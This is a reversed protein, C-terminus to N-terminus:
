RSHMRERPNDVICAAQYILCSEAAKDLLALTTSTASPIQTSHMSLSTSPQADPMDM